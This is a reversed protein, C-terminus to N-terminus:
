KVIEIPIPVLNDWFFFENHSNFYTISLKLDFSLSFIQQLLLRALYVYRIVCKTKNSNWFAPTFILMLCSSIRMSDRSIFLSPLISKLYLQSKTVDFNNECIINRYRCLNLINWTREHATDLMQIGRFFFIKTTLTVIKLSAKINTKDICVMALVIYM